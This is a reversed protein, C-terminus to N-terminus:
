IETIEATKKSLAEDVKAEYKKLLEQIEEKLTKIEDESYHQGDQKALGDAHKNADRRVNRMVVKQEEALKKAQAVLQQRREATLPPISLRIQKAEVMPTLGLGSAEIAQKIAGLSSADFPKILIQSPEPISIAALSKLDTPSGYYDVKVYDVLATTARGTRLGQFEHKLYDVAKQMAEESELLITDPDTTM